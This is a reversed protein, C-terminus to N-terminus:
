ASLLSQRDGARNGTGKSRRSRVQADGRQSRKPSAGIRSEGIKSSISASVSARDLDGALWRSGIRKPQLRDCRRRFGGGHGGSLQKPDIYKRLAAHVANPTLAKIKREFDAQFHMTRGLFLNEALSTALMTDMTRMVQQQQLYGTKAKELEDTKVGDRLLRALEEDVGTVVKAVNDPNYIALVMLSARRDLPSAQLMSMATYSLGGKQRLRDAIRSSLASGGGLVFNGMLLAPYDPDDDKIPMLLGALYVANEKDPTSVTDRRPETNPQYPREIWRILSTPNGTKWHRRCLDALIESLSSIAWSWSRM